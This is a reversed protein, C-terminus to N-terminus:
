ASRLCLIFAPTHGLALVRQRVARGAVTARHQAASHGATRSGGSAQLEIEKERAEKVVGKVLQVGQLLLHHCCICVPNLRKPRATCVHRHLLVHLRM